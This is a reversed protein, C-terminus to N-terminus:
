KHDSEMSKHLAVARKFDQCSKTGDDLVGFSFRASDDQFKSCGYKAKLVCCLSIERAAVALRIMLKMVFVKPM